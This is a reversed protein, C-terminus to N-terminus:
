AVARMAAPQSLAGLRLAGPKGSLPWHVTRQSFRFTAGQVHIRWESSQNEFSIEWFTSCVQPNPVIGMLCDGRDQFNSKAFVLVLPQFGAIQYRPTFGRTRCDSMEWARYPRCLIGSRVFWKEVRECVDPSRDGEGGWLLLPGPLPTMLTCPSVRRRQASSTRREWKENILFRVCGIFCKTRIERAVKVVRCSAVAWDDV